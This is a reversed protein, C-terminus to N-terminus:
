QKKLRSSLHPHITLVVGRGSSRRSFPALVWQISPRTLGLALRSPYTFDRGWRFEIGPGDLGYRTALTDRCVLKTLCFGYIHLIEPNIATIIFFMATRSTGGHLRVYLYWFKPSIQQLCIKKEGIKRFTSLTILVRLYSMGFYVIRCFM